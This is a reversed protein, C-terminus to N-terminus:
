YMYSQLQNRRNGMLSFERMHAEYSCIVRRRPGHVRDPPRRATGLGGCVGLCAGADVVLTGRRWVCSYLCAFACHAAALNLIRATEPRVRASPVRVVRGLWLAHSLALSAQPGFGGARVSMACQVSTLCTRFTRSPSPHFRPCQPPIQPARACRRDM